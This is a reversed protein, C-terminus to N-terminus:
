KKIYFGYEQHLRMLIQNWNAQLWSDFEAMLADGRALDNRDGQTQSGALHIIRITRFAVSQQNETTFYM